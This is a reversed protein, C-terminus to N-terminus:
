RTRTVKQLHRPQDADFGRLARSACRLGYFSQVLCIADAEPQDPPLAPCRPWRTAADSRATPSSCPPARAACIPPLSADHRGRGADSPMFMLLPYRTSVLAVPGHLFEAGSFAEAHLNCTEKLKLSAERAMPLTPGRGITVLSSRRRWRTAAGRELRPRDRRRASRPLRGLAAELAGHRRDLRRGLRLLAALSAVFTKTAAVSREPGAGMPLVIECAQALPSDIDNVLAATLAGAGRRRRAQEM